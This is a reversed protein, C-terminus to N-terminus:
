IRIKPQDIITANPPKKNPNSVATIEPTSFVICDINLKVDTSCPNVIEEANIPVTKPAKQALLGTSLYPLRGTKNTM